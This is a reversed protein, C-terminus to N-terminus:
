KLNDSLDIGVKHSYRPINQNKKDLSGLIKANLENEFTQVSRSIKVIATIKYNKGWHCNGIEQPKCRKDVKRCALLIKM